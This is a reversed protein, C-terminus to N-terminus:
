NECSHFPFVTSVRGWSLRMHSVGSTVNIVVSTTTKIGEGEGREKQEDGVKGAGVKAGVDLLGLFAVTVFFVSAVNLGFM